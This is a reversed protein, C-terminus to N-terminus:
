DLDLQNEYFIKAKQYTTLVEEREKPSRYRGEKESIEKLKDIWEIMQLADEGSKIPKNDVLVYVPSTHAQRVFRNQNFYLTRAALWGSKEPYIELNLESELVPDPIKGNLLVQKIIKGNHIIEFSEIPEISKLRSIIRIAKKDDSFLRITEGCEKGDVTFFLLPGSTAFTKGQALAQLINQQTLEAEVKVYTRNYGLPVRMVGMASGGSAALRIGCNLLHYYVHNTQWLLKASTFMEKQVSKLEAMGCCIDLDSFRHFHNHCIQASNFFGLAATVVNEGWVPKDCDIICSPSKARAEACLIADAPWTGTEPDSVPQNLGIFHPAGVSEFAGGGIREIEQNNFSILHTPDVRVTPDQKNELWLNITRYQRSNWVTLVPQYNIDDALSQQKLIALSDAGFHCHMDISYWGMAAMNIWRRLVIEVETTQGSKVAVEKEVPFYEKGREVHIIVNGAPVEIKFKGASSFSMDNEYTVCDPYFPKYYRANNIEIWSRCPVPSAQGAETITAVIFGTGDAIVESPEPLCILTVFLFLLSIIRM